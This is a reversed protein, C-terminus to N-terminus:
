GRLVGGGIGVRRSIAVADRPVALLEGDAGAAIHM